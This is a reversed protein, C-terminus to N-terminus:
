VENCEAGGVPQAFKGASLIKEHGFLFAQRQPCNKMIALQLVAYLSWCEQEISPNSIKGEKFMDCRLKFLRYVENNIVESKLDNKCFIERKKGNEGEGPFSHIIAEFALWMLVFREAPYIQSFSKDLLIVAEEPIQILEAAEINPNDFMNLSQNDFMSAFGEDSFFEPENKDNSFHRVFILERAVPVGFVLRLANATLVTQIKNDQRQEESSYCFTLKLNNSGAPIPEKRMLSVCQGSTQYHTAWRMRCTDETSPIALSVDINKFNNATLFFRIRPLDIQQLSSSWMIERFFSFGLGGWEEIIRNKFNDMFANKEATQYTIGLKTQTHPM